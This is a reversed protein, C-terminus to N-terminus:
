VKQQVPPTIVRPQHDLFTVLDRLTRVKGFMPNDESRELSRGTRQALRVGIDDLDDGAICLDHELDDCARVPYQGSFEEYVARIIWTDISRCDFAHAFSCISEGARARTIRRDRWWGILTGVLVLMPLPFTLPWWALGPLALLLAILVLCSVTGFLGLVRAQVQPM